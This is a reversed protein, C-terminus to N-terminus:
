KKIWEIITNKIEDKGVITKHKEENSFLSLIENPVKDNFEKALNLM